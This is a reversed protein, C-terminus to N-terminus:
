EPRFVLRYFEPYAGGNTCSSTGKLNSGCCSGQTTCFRDIFDRYMTTDTSTHEIWSWASSSANSTGFGFAHDRRETLDAPTCAHWDTACNAADVGKVYSSTKGDADGGIVRCQATQGM